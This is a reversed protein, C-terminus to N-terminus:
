GSNQTLWGVYNNFLCIKPFPPDEFHSGGNSNKVLASTNNVNCLLTDFICTLCLRTMQRVRLRLYIFMKLLFNCIKKGFWFIMQQGIVVQPGYCVDCEQTSSFSNM